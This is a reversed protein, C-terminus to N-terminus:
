NNEQQVLNAMHYWQELSTMKEQEKLDHYKSAFNKKFQDMNQGNQNEEGNKAHIQICTQPASPTIHWKYFKHWHTSQKQIQQLNYANM